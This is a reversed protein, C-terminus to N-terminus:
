SSAVSGTGHSFARPAYGFPQASNGCRRPGPVELAPSRGGSGSMFDYWGRETVLLLGGDLVPMLHHSCRWASLVEADRAGIVTLGPRPLITVLSHRPVGDAYRELPMACAERCLLESLDHQGLDYWHHRPVSRVAVVRQTTSPDAVLVIMLQRDVLPQDTVVDRLVQEPDRFDYPKLEM